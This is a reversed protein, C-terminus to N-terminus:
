SVVSELSRSGSMNALASSICASQNRSRDSASSALKLEIRTRRRLRRTSMVMSGWSSSVARHAGRDVRRLPFRVGLRRRSPESAPAPRQDDGPRQQDHRDKHGVHQRPALELCGVVGIDLDGLRRDRGRDAAPHGVDVDLLVLEDPATLHQEAQVGALDLGAGLGRGGLHGAGSQLHVTKARGVPQLRGIHGRRALGQGEVGALGFAQALQHGHADDGLELGVLGRVLRGQGPFLKGGGFLGGGLGEGPEAPIWVEARIRGRRDHLRLRLQLAGTQRHGVGGHHGRRVADDGAHLLQRDAAIEIRRLDGEPQERARGPDLRVELFILEGLHLGSLGHRDIDVGIRLVVQTAM